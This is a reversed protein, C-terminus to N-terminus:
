MSPCAGKWRWRKIIGDNGVVFREVCWREVNQQRVNAFVDAQTSAYLGQQGYDFELVTTGDSSTQTQTAMGRDVILAHAPQGVWAGVQQEFAQRQQQLAARRDDDARQM